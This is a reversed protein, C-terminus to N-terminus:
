DMLMAYREVQKHRSWNREDINQLKWHVSRKGGQKFKNRLIKNNKIWNYILNNKYDRQYNMKITYFCFQNIHISKWVLLKVSNIHKFCNNKTKQKKKQPSYNKFVTSYSRCVSYLIKNMKGTFLNQNFLITPTLVRIKNRIKSFFGGAKMISYSTLQPSKM